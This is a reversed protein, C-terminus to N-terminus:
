GLKYHQIALEVEKKRLLIIMKDNEIKLKKKEIKEEEMEMEKKMIYKMWKLRGKELELGEEEFKLREQELEMLRGMMWKRKEWISKTGDEILETMEERLKKRKRTLEECEDLDNDSGVISNMNSCDNHYGRMERYFLHKSSLLKKVEVKMKPSLNDIKELLCRNEVVRFAVEKGLIDNVRKYRKNLDNFKDECQQPSVRFGKEMMVKSVSKWKGKKTVSEETVAEDGNSCVVTILLRVMSDTWKMRHWQSNTSGNNNNNSFVSDNEEINLNFPKSTIIMGKSIVTQPNQHQSSHSSSSSPHHLSPELGLIGKNM